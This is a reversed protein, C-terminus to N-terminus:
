GASFSIAYADVPEQPIVEVVESRKGGVEAGARRMEGLEDRFFWRVNARRVRRSVSHAPYIKGGVSARVYPSRREGTVHM